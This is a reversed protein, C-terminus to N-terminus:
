RRLTVRTQPDAGQYTLTDCKLFETACCLVNFVSKIYRTRIITQERLRMLQLHKELLDMSRDMFYDGEEMQSDVTMTRRLSDILGSGVLRANVEVVGEVGIPTYKLNRPIDIAM